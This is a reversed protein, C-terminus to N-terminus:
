RSQGGLVIREEQAVYSQGGFWKEKTGGAM